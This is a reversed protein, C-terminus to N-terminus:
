AKERALAAAKKLHMLQGDNFAADFAPAGLAARAKEIHTDNFKRDVENAKFGLTKHISHAAGWLLAAKEMEGTNVALAAFRDLASGINEKDGLEESLDLSELAYMRAAEFDNLLCAVSSLNATFFPLTTRVSDQKVTTYAEEYYRRASEYDEQQRAIEGLRNVNISIQFKYNIERALMLSEETFTKAAPLDGLQLKTSGLSGLANSIAKAEGVERSLRLSEMTLVEAAAFDGQMRSLFGISYYARALLSPDAETGNREIAQKIWRGAEALHGRRTWFRIIAGTIRLAQEPENELSWDLATRLNDHERELVEMWQPVDAGSLEPEIAASLNAYFEAHLRKIREAEGSDQLMELAFEKVVVLMRLRPEGDSQERQSLLSKDVLSAVANLLDSGTDAEANAVAEAADLTFGGAFVALRNLLKKEEPELLDYSWSIAARMNRQREPLDRAGGTLLKLSSSLRNLIAQPTLLKIRVAALEIALPLGDLRRCIEAITPANDETLQFNSKASQARRVFLEIAPFERFDKLNLDQGVPIGLPQLTFEHESHLQLRVRSTVLIKLDTTLKLIEGIDLAADTIQEFNDLVILMRKKLLYERLIEKLSRNNEERVGLTQAIIPLVLETRNIASLDIFYVGDPYDNLMDQAVAQALRTKGTGGIGTITVLSLEPRRLLDHIETMEKERGVLRTIKASLNNPPLNESTTSAAASFSPKLVNEQAPQTIDAAESNEPSFSREVEEFELRQKVRRLDALVSTLSQYREELNKRLMKGVIFEIDGPIDFSIKTLAPPEKQIISVIQDTTTEGPFPLRKTLLEYLLVGFSWIDTRNDVKLGRAQEPSMYAATGRIVGPNSYVLTRDEESISSTDVLKALGFDLVKVFGDRRLMVNEPKIDRHIIGASHAASLASGTQIALDLIERLDHRPSNILERLTEGEVLETVIFRTKGIEGIEHITIINPHNLSSTAKAEQIFRNMRESNESLNEPLMKIAVRRGLRTDEALFVEGMGGRGLPERIKYHGLEAGALDPQFSQEALMEAVVLGPPADLFGEDEFALLSEVERRLIEDTGCSERVFAERDSPSLSLAAHYIEEIQKLREADM